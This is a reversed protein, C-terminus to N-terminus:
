LKVDRCWIQAIAVWRELDPSSDRRKEEEWPAPHSPHHADNRKLASKILVKWIHWRQKTQLLYLGSARVKGWWGKKWGNVFIWGWLIDDDVSFTKFYDFNPIHISYRKWVQNSGYQSWPMMKIWLRSLKTQRQQWSALLAALRFLSNSDHSSTNQTQQQRSVRKRTM